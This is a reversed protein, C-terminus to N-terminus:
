TALGHQNLNAGDNNYTDLQNKLQEIAKGGSDVADNVAEIIQQTTLAYDVETHAANLIGAVSHRLLANIGGGKQGLAQALTLSGLNGFADGFVSEVSQDPSYGMWASAGHKDANNKWFGPTLGERGTTEKPPCPPPLLEGFNFNVAHDFEGLCINAFTDNDVGLEGIPPGWDLNGLTDIGDVYGAPQTEVIEYTGAYLEIFCYQGDEGTTQVQSVPLGYEDVGSLTVTVGAIGQEGEEKIGNNNADHYVYGCLTAGWTYEANLVIRSEFAELGLRTRHQSHSM